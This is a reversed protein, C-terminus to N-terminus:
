RRRLRLASNIAHFVNKDITASIGYVYVATQHLKLGSPAADRGQPDGVIGPTENALTHPNPNTEAGAPIIRGPSDTCVMRGPDTRAVGM